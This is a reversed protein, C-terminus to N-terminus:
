LNFTSWIFLFFDRSQRWRVFVKGSWFLTARWIVPRERNLKLKRNGAVRSRLWCFLYLVCNRTLCASRFRRFFLFMGSNRMFFKRSLAPFCVLIQRRSLSLLTTVWLEIWSSTMNSGQIIVCFLQQENEAQGWMWLRSSEIVKIFERYHKREALRADGSSFGEAAHLM